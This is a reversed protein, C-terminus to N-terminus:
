DSIPLVLRNKPEMSWQVQWTGGDEQDLLIFTYMNSTPYLTFRGPRKDKGPALDRSSLEVAARNDDTVDFHIQWMRGTTTDLQIFTWINTTRFLRYPAKPDQSPESIQSQAFVSSCAFIFAYLIAMRKSIKM